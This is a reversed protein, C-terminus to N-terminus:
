EKERQRGMKRSGARASFGLSIIAWEGAEQLFLKLFDVIGKGGRRPAAPRRGGRTEDQRFFRQPSAPHEAYNDISM